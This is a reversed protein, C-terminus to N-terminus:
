GLRVEYVPVAEVRELVGTLAKVEENRAAMATEAQVKAGEKLPTIKLTLGAGQRIAERHEALGIEWDAGNCFVDSIMRSGLFLAALDGECRIRLRLDKLGDLADGPLSLAWRFPATERCDVRVTKEQVRVTYVGWAGEDPGREAGSASLRTKPCCKVRIEARDSELRLGGREDELPAAETMLLSGDRLLYLQDAEQRTLVLVDTERGAKRLTFARDDGTREAGPEFRFTGDLGEPIFFVYTPRGAIVTRLVPQANAQELLIGDLDFRFPLIANEEPALSVDFTYAADATVVRVQEGRRAPMSRHDQFNNVFLFGSRGDTRVAFRLTELDEPSIRSAGEPLVTEMPALRGGFSAAFLHISKLRRYSERLQGFEGIAAQYDYSVKTVQSENLYVGGQGIPNTGGHYMYYGLFNCGSGMKINALADVSRYPYIFRYYYCCMMGGGMECCAYPRDEPPYAPAFDDACFAGNRHYDEYIYEETAPHEGRHSYFIWPRYPYGGWLPLIRPSYAAGGWATGTYFVPNLGCDRAIERLALLYAEGERGAPVWEESVGTTIEWPASSHMYENDLQVGIVPGGEGYMLGATQRGIEAYLRRTLALFGPDTSRVEFPKGYLWDPLGGNRVEGHCFPGVRLIVYLGHKGCLEVFRRLDRRGRFDFRGEEEEVHNWFVYTSVVSVGGMRIKILEDEWREPDMRSYHMEGSVPYFPAGNREFYFSNVALEEGGPARGAFDEGLPRVGAAKFGSVNLTHLM